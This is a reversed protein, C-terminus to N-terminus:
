RRKTRRTARKKTVKKTAARKAPKAAKKAPGGKKAAKTQAPKRAAPRPPRKAAPAAPVSHVAFAAGQPDRAQAIRDGGPVEMPGNLITGGLRTIQKATNDASPVRLYCLWHPPAPMEPPKTYIGGLQIGNRGFVRYMGLPGMDVQQLSDWGFLAQYFTWAAPADTTALENWSFEGVQPAGDHGSPEGEPELIAFVAGQPDSLVAFTGAGPVRQPGAEVTAGLDTARRATAEADQVAVYPLWNPPAGAAKAEDPLLMMGAVPTGRHSFVTYGPDTPYLTATWGTLQRYFAEAQATDTTLLEHWSIRGRPFDPM